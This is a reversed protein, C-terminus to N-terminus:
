TEEDECRLYKIFLSILYSNNIDLILNRNTIILTKITLTRQHYIHKKCSMNYWAVNQASRTNGTDTIKSTSFHKHFGQM